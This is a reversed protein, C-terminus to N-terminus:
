SDHKAQGTVHQLATWSDSVRPLAGVLPKHDTFITFSCGELIFSLHSIGEVCALLERDLASWKARPPRWSPLSSVWLSSLLIDRPISNFPRELTLPRLMWWM